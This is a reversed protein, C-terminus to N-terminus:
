GHHPQVSELADRRALTLWRFPSRIQRARRNTRPEAPRLGGDPEALHVRGARARRVANWGANPQRPLGNSLRVSPRAKARGRARRQGSELRAECDPSAECPSLTPLELGRLRDHYRPVPCVLGFSLGLSVRASGPGEGRKQCSRACRSGVMHAAAFTVLSRHTGWAMGVGGSRWLEHRI